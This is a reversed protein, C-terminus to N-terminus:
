RNYRTNWHLITCQWWYENYEDRWEDGDTIVHDPDVGLASGFLGGSVLSDLTRDDTPTQVGDDDFPIFEVKVGAGPASSLM